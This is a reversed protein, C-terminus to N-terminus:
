ISFDQEEKKYGKEIEENETCDSEENVVEVTIYGKKFALTFGIILSAVVATAIIATQTPFQNTQATPTTISSPSNSPQTTKSPTNSPQTTQIPTSSPSVSPNPTQTPITSPNPTPLANPIAESTVSIVHNATVDSFTYNAIAGNDVNDVYVHKVNYGTKNQITFTQINGYNISIEGSPSITSGLDASSSINYSLEVSYVNVVHSATVHDFTYSDIQGKSEGDIIVNYGYSKGASFNFTKSGSHPVTVNAPFVTSKSDSFTTINYRKWDIEAQSFADVKLTTTYNETNWVGSTFVPQGLNTWVNITETNNAKFTLRNDEFFNTCTTLTTSESMANSGYANIMLTNGALDNFTYYNEFALPDPFPSSIYLKAVEEASLATKFISLDDMTGNFYDTGAKGITIDKVYSYDIVGTLNQTAKFIGNVYFKVQGLTSDYTLVLNYWTNLAPLTVGDLRGNSWSVNSTGWRSSFTNGQMILRYSYDRSIIGGENFIGYSFSRPFIWISITLATLPKLAVTDRILCSSQSGDFSLGNSFKASTWTANAITINNMNTSSDRSISGLGEDMNWNGMLNPNRLVGLTPSSVAISDSFSLYSNNDFSWENM